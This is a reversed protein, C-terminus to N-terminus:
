GGLFGAAEILLTSAGRRAAAVAAACGASGGGVVAVDGHWLVSLNVVDGPRYCVTMAADMRRRGPGRRRYGARVGPVAVLDGGRGGGAPDGAWRGAADARPAPEVAGPQHAGPH